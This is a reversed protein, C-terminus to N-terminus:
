LVIRQRELGDKHGFNILWGLKYHTAKLYNLVQARNMDDLQLLAKIEIIISDYCVFDPRFKIKMMQGDYYLDIEKEREYPIGLKQFEIELAEQYVAEVFGPGLVNYVHLAAGIINYSEQKYYLEMRIWINTTM